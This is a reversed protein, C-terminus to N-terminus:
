RLGDLWGLVEDRIAAVTPAGFLSHWGHGLGDLERYTADGGSAVLTETLLRSQGVPVTPDDASHAIFFPPDEADVQATVSADLCLGDAQPTGPACADPGSVGILEGDGNDAGDRLPDAFLTPWDSPGFYDVVGAIPHALAAGGACEAPLWSPEDATVGLFSSLYGGASGGLAFFASPDLGHESAQLQLWALACRLDGITGAFPVEGAPYDGVLRYNVSFAAYGHAQLHEAWLVEAAGAKDGTHFGGGHIVMVLPAPAQRAPLYLDGALELDGVTRYVLDTFVEAPRDGFPIADALEVSADPATAVADLEGPGADGALPEPPGGCAAVAAALAVLALARATLM